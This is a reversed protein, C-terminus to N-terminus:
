VGCLLKLLTSKGAGNEGIIGWAEGQRICLSVDRLAWFEQSFCKRGLSLVEKLHDLPRNYVRYCKGLSCAEILTTEVMPRSHTSLGERPSLTRGFAMMMSRSSVGLSSRDRRGWRMGCALLFIPLIM